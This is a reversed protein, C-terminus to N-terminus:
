VKSQSEGNATTGLALSFCKLVTSNWAIGLVYTAMGHDRSAAKAFYILVGTRMRVATKRCLRAWIAMLGTAASGDMWCWRSMGAVFHDPIGDRGTVHFFNGFESIMFGAWTEWIHTFFLYFHHAFSLSDSHLSLFFVREYRLKDDDCLVFLACVHIIFATGDPNPPHLPPESRIFLMLVTSIEQQQHLSVM